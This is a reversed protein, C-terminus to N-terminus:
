TASVTRATRYIQKELATKLDRSWVRVVSDKQGPARVRVTKVQLRVRDGGPLDRVPFEARTGYLATDLEWLLGQLRPVEAAVEPPLLTDILDLLTARLRKEQEQAKALIDLPQQQQLLPRRVEAFVDFPAQRLKELARGADAGLVFSVGGDPKAFAGVVDPQTWRQSAEWEERDFIDTADPFDGITPGTPVALAAPWPPAAATLQENVQKMFWGSSKGVKRGAKMVDVFRGLRAGIEKLRKILWSDRTMELLFPVVNDFADKLVRKIEHWVRMETAAQGDKVVPVDEFAPKALGYLSTFQDVVLTFWNTLTGVIGQLVAWQSRPGVYLAELKAFLDTFVLAIIAFVATALPILHDLFVALPELKPGVFVVIFAALAFVFPLLTALGDLVDLVRRVLPHRVEARPGLLQTLFSRVAIFLRALGGLFRHAVALDDRMAIAGFPVVVGLVPVGVAFALAGLAGFTLWNAVAILTVVVDPLQESITAMLVMSSTPALLAGVMTGAIGAIPETLNIDATNRLAERRMLLFRRKLEDLNAIAIRVDGAFLPLGTGFWRALFAGRARALLVGELAVLQNWGALKAIDKQWSGFASQLLLGLPM